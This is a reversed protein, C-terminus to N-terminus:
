QPICPHLPNAQHLKDSWSHLSFFAANLNTKYM